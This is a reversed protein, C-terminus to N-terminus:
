EDHKISTCAIVIRLMSLKSAETDQVLITDIGVSTEPCVAMALKLYEGINNGSFQLLLDKTYHTKDILLKQCPGSAVVGHAVSLHQLTAIQLHGRCTSADAMALVGVPVFLYM